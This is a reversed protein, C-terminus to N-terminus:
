MYRGRSDRYRREQMDDDDWERGYYGRREGYNGRQSYREGYRDREGYREGYRGGRESFQAKMDEWIECAEMLGSKAMKLSDGFRRVDDSRESLDIIYGM